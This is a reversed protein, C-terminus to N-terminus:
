RWAYVSACPTRTSISSGVFANSPSRGTPTTPLSGSSRRRSSGDAALTRLL